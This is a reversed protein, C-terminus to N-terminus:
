RGGYGLLARLRGLTALAASKSIDERSAAQHQCADAVHSAYENVLLLIEIWTPRKAQAPYAADMALCSACRQRGLCEILKCQRMAPPKIEVEVGLATRLLQLAQEPTLEVGHADPARWYAGWEVCQRQLQETLTEPDTIPDEERQELCRVGALVAVPQRAPAGEAPRGQAARHPRLLPADRLALAPRARRHRCARPRRRYLSHLLPARDPKERQNQCCSRRRTRQASGCKAGM